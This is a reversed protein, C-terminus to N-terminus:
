LAFIDRLAFELDRNAKTDEQNKALMAEPRKMDIVVRCSVRKVTELQRFVAM